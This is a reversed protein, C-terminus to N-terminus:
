INLLVTTIKCCSLSSAQQLHIFCCELLCLVGTVETAHILMLCSKLFTAIRTVSFSQMKDRRHFSQETRVPENKLNATFISANKCLHKWYNCGTSTRVGCTVGILAVILSHSHGGQQSTWSEADLLNM